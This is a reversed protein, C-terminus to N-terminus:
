SMLIKKVQQPKKIKVIIIGTKSLTALQLHDAYWEM